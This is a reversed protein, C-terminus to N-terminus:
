HNRELLRQKLLYVFGEHDSAISMIMDDVGLTIEDKEELWTYLQKSFKLFIEEAFLSRKVLDEESDENYNLDDIFKKTFSIHNDLSAYSTGYVGIMKEYATDIHKTTDNYLRDFLLHDAYYVSSRCTWHAQQHIIALARLIGAYIALQKAVKSEKNLTEEYKQAITIISPM